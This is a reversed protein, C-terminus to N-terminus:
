PSNSSNNNNNSNDSNWFILFFWSALFSCLQSREQVHHLTQFLLSVHNNKTPHNTRECRASGRDTNHSGVVKNKPKTGRRCQELKERVNSGMERRNQQSKQGFSASASAIAVSAAEATTTTTTSSASGVVTTELADHGVNNWGLDTLRCSSSHVTQVVAGIDVM